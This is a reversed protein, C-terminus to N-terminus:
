TTAKLSRRERRGLLYLEREREHRHLETSRDPKGLLVGLGDDGGPSTSTRTPPQLFVRRGPSNDSRALAPNNPDFVIPNASGWSSGATSSPEVISKSVGYSYGGSASLGHTMPKSVSAAINWSHNQNQNKIVYNATVSNGVANNLRQDRM